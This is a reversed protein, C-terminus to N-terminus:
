LDMVLGAPVNAFGSAAAMNMAKAALNNITLPYASSTTRGNGNFRTLRRSIASFADEAFVAESKVNVREFKHALYRAVDRESLGTIEAATVRRIVERLQPYRSEDLRAGLEPQGIMVVGILREYGDELEWIQKLHKVAPISMLHAEEILLCQKLGSRKRNLLLTRAQRSKAEMTRKPTEESVDMIIADLLSAATIRAKDIIVPFIVQVGIDFLDKIVARRMTTKGCGVEGFVASRFLM